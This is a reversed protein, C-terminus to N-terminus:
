LYADIGVRELNALKDILFAIDEKKSIIGGHQPAIVDIDLPRIQDMAYKLAKGSPMIRRHFSLIDPLPCYTRRNPCNQYDRCTYCGPSLNIYLDWTKSFSGFLDSTFLVKTKTDYTMFSGANHCFPTRIFRLKRSNFTYGRESFNVTKLLPHNEKGLYYTLFVRDLPDSFIKLAPNYIIDVLNPMSGCLDPDYHHYILATIQGPQLGAQLIKMMVVAFDPRSGGDILVAQDGEVLLYPNCHLNTKEEHFGVWFIGDAIPIPRDYEYSRNM